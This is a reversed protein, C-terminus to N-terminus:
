ESYKNKILYYQEKTDVDDFLEPDDFVLQSGGARNDRLLRRAGEDGSLKALEEFWEHGFVIPPRQVGRHNSAVYSATNSEYHHLLGDLMEITIGPQDALLIMIADPEYKQAALLGCHISYAQGLNANTCWVHNWKSCLPEKLLTKPVWSPIERERTVVIVCELQSQIATRLARSGLTERELPLSLKDAGMRSSKGAALYIGVVRKM